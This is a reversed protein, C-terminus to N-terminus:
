IGGEGLNGNYDTDKEDFVYVVNLVEMNEDSFIEVVSKQYTSKAKNFENLDKFSNVSFISILALILIAGIIGVKNLKKGSKKQMKKVTNENEKANFKEFLLAPDFLNFLKLKEMGCEKCISNNTENDTGCTCIWSSDIEKPIYEYTDSNLNNEGLFESDLFGLFESIKKPHKSTDFKQNFKNVWTSGDAYTLNKVIIDINMADSNLAIIKDAGFVGAEKVEINKYSLSKLRQVENFMKDYVVLEFIASSITNKRLNKFIASFTIAGDAENKLINAKLLLIPLKVDWSNQVNLVKKTSM